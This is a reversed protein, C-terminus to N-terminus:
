HEEHIFIIEKVRDTKVNLATSFPATRMDLLRYNSQDTHPTRDLVRNRLLAGLALHRIFDAGCELRRLRRSRHLLWGSIAFHFLAKEPGTSQNTISNLKQRSENFHSEAQCNPGHFCNFVGNSKNKLGDEANRCDACIEIHKM